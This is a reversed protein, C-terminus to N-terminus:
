KLPPNQASREPPNLVQERAAAYSRLVLPIAFCYIVVTLSSLKVVGDTFTSLCAGGVVLAAAVLLGFGSGRKLALAFPFGAALAGAGALAWLIGLNSEDLLFIAIGACLSAAVVVAWVRRTLKLDTAMASLVFAVLGLIGVASM